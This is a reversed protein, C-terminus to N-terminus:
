IDVLAAGLWPKTYLPPKAAAYIETSDTNEIATRVHSVMVSTGLRRSQADIVYSVRAVTAYITTDTIVTDPDFLDQPLEIKITSGPAIDFRIHCALEVVNGRLKESIYLYQAWRTLLNSSVLQRAAAAPPNAVPQQGNPDIGNPVPQQGNPGAGVTTPANQEQVVPVALWDPLAKLIMIGDPRDAPNLPFIGVLLPLAAEDNDAALNGGATSFISGYLGVAQIPQSVASVTKANIYDTTNLTVLPEGQLAGVAPVVLCDQVRPVVDFGFKPSWDGVIKGWATTNVWSSLIENNISKAICGAINPGNVGAMDLALPVYDGAAVTTAVPTMRKLAAQVRAQAATNLKVQNSADTLDITDRSAIDSIIPYLVSGWMDTSVDVATINQAIAPLWSGQFNGGAAQRGYAASFTYSSPNGPQSTASLASYENLDALWHTVTITIQSSNDARDWSVGLIKGDFIIFPKDPWSIVPAGASNGINTIQLYVQITSDKKLLNFDTYAAALDGTAMDRGTPLMIAATPINNKEFTSQFSILGDFRTGATTPTAGVVAYMTPASSIWDIVASM